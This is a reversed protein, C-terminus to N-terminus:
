NAEPVDSAACVLSVVVDQYDGDNADEGGMIHTVVSHDTKGPPNIAAENRIVEPQAKFGNLEASFEANVTYAGNIQGGNGTMPSMYGGSGTLTVTSGNSGTVDVTWSVSTNTFGSVVCDMAYTGMNSCTATNIGSTCQSQGAMAGSGATAAGAVGAVLVLKTLNSSERSKRTM